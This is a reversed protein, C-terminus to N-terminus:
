IFLKAEEYSQNNTTKINVSNDYTKGFPTQKQLHQTYMVRLTHCYALAAVATYAIILAYRFLGEHTVTKMNKLMPLADNFSETKCKKKKLRKICKSSAINKTQLSM